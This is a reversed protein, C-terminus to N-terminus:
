RGEYHPTRIEWSLLPCPGRRNEPNFHVPHILSSGLTYCSSQAVARKRAKPRGLSPVVRDEVAANPVMAQSTYMEGVTRDEVIASPGACGIILMTVSAITLGPKICANSMLSDSPFHPNPFKSGPRREWNGM